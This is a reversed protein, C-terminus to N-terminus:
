IGKGPIGLCDPIEHLTILHNASFPKLGTQNVEMRAEVFILAWSIIKKFFVFLWFLSSKGFIETRGRKRRQLPFMGWPWCSFLPCLDRRLLLTPHVYWQLSSLQIIASSDEKGLCNQWFGSAWIELMGITRNYFLLGKPFVVKFIEIM